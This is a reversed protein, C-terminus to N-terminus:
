QPHGSRPLIAPVSGLIWLLSSPMVSEFSRFSPLYYFFNCSELPSIRRSLYFGEVNIDGSNQPGETNILNYQFGLECEIASQFKSLAPLLLHFLSGSCANMWSIISPFYVVPLEGRQRMRFLKLKASEYLLHWLLSGHSSPSGALNM